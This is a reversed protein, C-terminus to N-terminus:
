VEESNFPRLRQVHLSSTCILERATQPVACCSGHSSGRHLSTQHSTTGHPVIQKSEVHPLQRLVSYPADFWLFRHPFMCRIAIVGLSDPGWAELLHASLDKEGGTDDHCHLRRTYHQCVNFMRRSHKNLRLGLTQALAKEAAYQNFM